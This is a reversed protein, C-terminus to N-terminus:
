LNPINLKGFLAVSIIGGPDEQLSQQGPVEAMKARSCGMCYKFMVRLATGGPSFGSAGNRFAPPGQGTVDLLFRTPGLEPFHPNSM